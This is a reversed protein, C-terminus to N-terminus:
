AFTIFYIRRWHQTEISDFCQQMGRPLESWTITLKKGKTDFMWEFHGKGYTICLCLVNAIEVHCMTLM